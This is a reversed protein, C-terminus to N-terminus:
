QPQRTGDSVALTQWIQWFCRCRMRPSGLLWHDGLLHRVACCPWRRVASGQVCYALPLPWESLTQVQVILLRVQMLSESDELIRSMRRLGEEWVQGKHSRDSAEPTAASSLVGENLAVLILVFARACRSGDDGNDGEEVVYTDKDRYMIEIVELARGSTELRGAITKEELSTPVHLPLSLDSSTKLARLHNNLSAELLEESLRKLLRLTQFNLVSRVTSRSVSRRITDDSSNLGEMLIEMETVGLHGDWIAVPLTHLCRLVLVHVNPKPIYPTSSSTESPLLGRGVIALLRKALMTAPSRLTAVLQCIELLVAVSDAVLFAPNVLSVVELPIM